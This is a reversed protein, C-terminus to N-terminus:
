HLKTLLSNLMGSKLTGKNAFMLIFYLNRNRKLFMLELPVIANEDDHESANGYFEDSGDPKYKIYFRKFNSSYYAVSDNKTIVRTQEGFINL